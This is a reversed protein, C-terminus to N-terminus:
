KKKVKVEYTVSHTVSYTVSVRAASGGYIIDTNLPSKTKKGLFKDFSKKSM